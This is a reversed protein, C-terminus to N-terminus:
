IHNTKKGYTEVECVLLYEYNSQQIVAYADDGKKNTM